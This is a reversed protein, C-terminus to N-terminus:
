LRFNSCQMQLIYVLFIIFIIYTVVKEFGFKVETESAIVESSFLFSFTFVPVFIKDACNVQISFVALGLCTLSLASIILHHSLKTKNELVVCNLTNVSLRPRISDPYSCALSDGIFLLLTTRAIWLEDPHRRLIARLYKSGGRGLLLEEIMSKIEVNQLAGVSDVHLSMHCLKTSRHPIASM